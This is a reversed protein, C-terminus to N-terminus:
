TALALAVTGVVGFAVGDAFTFTKNAVDAADAAEPLLIRVLTLPVVELDSTLDVTTEGRFIETDTANMATVLIRRQSAMPVLLDVTVVNQQMESLTLSQTIPTA